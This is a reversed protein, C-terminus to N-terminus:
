MNEEIVAGAWTSSVLNCCRVFLRAEMPEEGMEGRKWGSVEMSCHWSPLYVLLYTIHTPRATFGEFGHAPFFFDRLSMCM